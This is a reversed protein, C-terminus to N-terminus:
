HVPVIKTAFGVGKGKGKTVVARLNTEGKGQEQLTHTKIHTGTPGGDRSRVKVVVAGKLRGSKKKKRSNASIAVAKPRRKTVRAATEIRRILAGGPGGTVAPRAGRATRGNWQNKMRKGGIRTLSQLKRERPSHLPVRRRRVRGAGIALAKKRDECM